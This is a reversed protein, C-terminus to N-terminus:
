INVSKVKGIPQLEPNYTGKISAVKIHKTFTM